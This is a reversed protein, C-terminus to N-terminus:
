FLFLNFLPYIRLAYSINSFYIIKKIIPKPTNLKDKKKM